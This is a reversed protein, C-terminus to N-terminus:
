PKRPRLTLPLAEVAPAPSPAGTCGGCSACGDSCSSGSGSRPQWRAARERLWAPASSAAVAAALRAQLRRTTKPLLKRSAVLLSWLALAALLAAQVM